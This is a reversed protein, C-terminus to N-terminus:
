KVLVKKTTGNNMQIINIGKHSNNIVRGDLSYRKYENAGAREIESISTSSSDEIFTFKKWGGTARYKDITGAPVYLTANYFTNDSFTSTYITYPNEIMSIVEQLDIHSFAEKGISTVNNPITVSTLDSCYSFAKDGITTVSNPITISTLSNCNFFAEDGITTVSNPITFSTLSYCYYFARKGITTVSNPITISSLSSCSGFASNNITTLGSPITVSTLNKCGAFANQGISTVKRTRNMYTVEEPIVLSGSHYYNDGYTVELEKGDNIYNYFLPVDDANKVKIDYAWAKTGVISLLISFLFVLKKTAM